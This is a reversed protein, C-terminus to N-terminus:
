TRWCGLYHPCTKSVCGSDYIRIGEIKSGILAFTMAVRHDDYTNLLAPKLNGKLGDIFEEVKIGLSTLSECIVGIRNSEHHRIHEVDKITIPGDAFPAMAALTLTQDSMERM